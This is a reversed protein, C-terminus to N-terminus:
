KKRSVMDGLVIYQLVIVNVVIDGRKHIYTNMSVSDTEPRELSEM